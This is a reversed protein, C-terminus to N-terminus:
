DAPPQFPITFSFLAGKGPESEAWIRGGHREIIKRCITLGIGSGPYVSAPHLRQFIIFIKEAYAPDFGIGNDRVSFQWADENRQASVHIAPKTEGRFKISNSLLNQFVQVLQSADAQVTPLPEYTIATDSERIKLRLDAMAQILVENADVPAFANGKTGVRSYALLDNIMRQMRVAGDVAYGIFEDANSDLRGQYRREILQLYSAVMRLPEQLDHSAIYAFQELERNSRSLDANAKRLRDESERQVRDAERHEELRLSESEFLRRYFSVSERRWLFGVATGALVILTVVIVGIYLARERVPAYVEESDIKAVLFWPSDQVQRLAALVPTGRYDVGEVIGITGRVLMAAPLEPAAAPIRFLLATRKKHRLENLFLVDTGDSRVLLTEGTPSPTPWAQIEPYLFREPDIRMIVAGVVRGGPTGSRILPAILDMSVGEDTKDRQLDMLMTKKIRMAERAADMAKKGPHLGANGTALVATGKRDVLVLRKYENNKRLADLRRLINERRAPSRPGELYGEVYEAFISSGILAEADNLREARWNRLQSVKLDAIASLERYHAQTINGRQLTYYFYGAGGVAAAFALFVLLYAAPFPQHRIQRSTDQM